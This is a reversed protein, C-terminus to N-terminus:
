PTPNTAPPPTPYAREVASKLQALLMVSPADLGGQLERMWVPGKRKGDASITYVQLRDGEAGMQAAAGMSDTDGPQGPARGPTQGTPVRPTTSPGTQSDAGGARAKRVVFVLDAQESHVALTYRHWAQVADQVDEIAKRDAPSLGPKSYDGDAAEVYVSHATEFVAPVDNHKKKQAVGLAPLLIALLVIAMYHKM